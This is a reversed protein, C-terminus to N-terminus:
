CFAIVKSSIYVQFDAFENEVAAIKPEVPEVTTAPFISSREPMTENEPFISRPPPGLATQQLTSSGSLEREHSKDNSKVSPVVELKIKKENPELIWTCTLNWSLEFQFM